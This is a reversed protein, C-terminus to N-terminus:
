MYYTIVEFAQHMSKHVTLIVLISIDSLASRVGLVLHRKGEDTLTTIPPLYMFRFLIVIM